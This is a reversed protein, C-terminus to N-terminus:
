GNVASCMAQVGGLKFNKATVANGTEFCWHPSIKDLLPKDLTAVRQLRRMNVAGMHQRLNM